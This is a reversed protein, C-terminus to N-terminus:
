AARTLPQWTKTGAAVSAATVAEPLTDFVRIWQDTGFYALFGRVRYHSAAIRLEVVGDEKLLNYTRILGGLGAADIFTTATMDIVVAAGDASAALVAACLQDRNDLSLEAPTTVVPVGNLSCTGFDRRSLARIMFEEFPPPPVTGDNVWTMSYESQQM